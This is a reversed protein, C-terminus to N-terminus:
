LLPSSWQGRLINKGPSNDQWLVKGTNKDLCLLSPAEPAPLTEGEWNRGNGTTVYIRNRYSAAISCSFGITMPHGAPYVGLDKMMDLKWTTRPEGTGRRLPGVDLCVAEARNTVFYLRDGEVLPACNIPTMPWDVDRGQPLRPSVYQWLFKGDRVRF